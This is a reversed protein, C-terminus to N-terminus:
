HQFIQCFSFSFVKYFSVSLYIPFIYVIFVSRNQVQTCPEGRRFTKLQSSRDPLSGQSPPSSNSGFVIGSQKGRIFEVPFLYIDFEYFLIIIFYIMFCTLNLRVPVGFPKVCLGSSKGPLTAMGPSRYPLSTICILNEQSHSNSGCLVKRIPFEM